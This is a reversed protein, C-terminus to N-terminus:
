SHINSHSSHRLFHDHHITLYWRLILSSPSLFVVSNRLCSLRRGPRYEFAHLESYSTVHRVMRASSRNAETIFFWGSPSNIEIQSYYYRIYQEPVQTRVGYSPWTMLHWTSAKDWVVTSEITDCVRCCHPTKLTQVPSTTDTKIDTWM